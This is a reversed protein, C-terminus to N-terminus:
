GLLTLVAAAAAQLVNLHLPQHCHVQQMAISIAHVAQGQFLMAHCM